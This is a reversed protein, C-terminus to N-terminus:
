PEPQKVGPITVVGNALLKGRRTTKINWIADHDISDVAGQEVLWLIENRLVDPPLAYNYPSNSLIDCLIDENLSYTPAKSLVRLIDLRLYERWSKGMDKLTM